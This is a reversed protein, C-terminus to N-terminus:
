KCLLGWMVCMHINLAIYWGTPKSFMRVGAHSECLCSFYFFISFHIPDALRNQRSNEHSHPKNRVGYCMARMAYLCMRAHQEFFLVNCQIIHQAGNLHSWLEFWYTSFPNWRNHQNSHTNQTSRKGWQQKWIITIYHSTHAVCVTRMLCQPPLYACKIGMNGSPGVIYSFIFLYFLAYHLSIFLITPQLVYIKRWRFMSLTLLFSLLFSFGSRLPCRSFHTRIVINCQVINENRNKKKKLHKCRNKEVKKNDSRRRM